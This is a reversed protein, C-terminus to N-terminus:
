PDLNWTFTGYEDMSAPQFGRTEQGSGCTNANTSYFNYPGPYEVCLTHSGGWYLDSGDADAYFYFNSNITEVINNCDGADVRFWGRNYFRKEGVPIYSVAVLADHSSRNCVKLQITSPQNATAEEEWEDEWDQGVAAPAVALVLAALAARTTMHKM